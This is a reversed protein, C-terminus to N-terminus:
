RADYFEFNSRIVRIFTRYFVKPLKASLRGTKVDDTDCMEGFQRNFGLAKWMARENPLYITHKEGSKTWEDMTMSLTIYTIFVSSYRLIAMLVFNKLLRNEAVCFIVQRSFFTRFLFIRPPFFNINYCLPM